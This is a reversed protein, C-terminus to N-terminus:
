GREDVAEPERDAKKVAVVQYDNGIVFDALYRHGMIIKHETELIEEIFPDNVEAGRNRKKRHELTELRSRVIFVRTDIWKLLGAYTGEVIVVKVGALDVRESELADADYDVLPKELETAGLTADKLHQNLLDMRVEMPGLWGPDTRRAADNTKPPLVFYDDQGLIVSRVDRQALGDAIARATESKGSGSEGSVAITYRSPKAKVGDLVARVIPEAARRHHEEVVIKDGKM